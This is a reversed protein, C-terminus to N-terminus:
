AAGGNGGRLLNPVDVPFRAVYVDLRRFWLFTKLSIGGEAAVGAVPGDGIFTHRWRWAGEPGGWVHIFRGGGRGM